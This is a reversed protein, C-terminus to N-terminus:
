KNHKRKNDNKLGREIKFNRRKMIKLFERIKM